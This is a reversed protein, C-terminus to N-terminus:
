KEGENEIVKEIRDKLEHIDKTATDWVADFDVGFYGQILKDRM